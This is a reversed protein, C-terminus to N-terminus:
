PVSSAFHVLKPTGAAGMLFCMKQALLGLAVMMTVVTTVGIRRQRGTHSHCICHALGQATQGQKIGLQSPMPVGLAWPARVDSHISNARPLSTLHHGYTATPHSIFFTQFVLYTHLIRILRSFNRHKQIHLQSGTEEDTHCVFFTKYRKWKFRRKPRM